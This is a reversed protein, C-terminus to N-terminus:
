RLKLEYVDTRRMSIFGGRGRWNPDIAATIVQESDPQAQTIVLGDPDIICSHSFQHPGATNAHVFWCGNESARSSINARIAPLKYLGERGFAATPHAFIRAGQLALMRWLEPFRMDLCIAVGIKKGDVLVPKLGTAAGPAFQAADGTRTSAGTLQIKDYRGALQGRPSITLATNYYRFGEKITTGVVVALKLKKAAARVDQTARKLYTFDIDRLGNPYHAPGYGSLATEPFVIMRARRKRAAEHMQDLVVRRNHALDPGSQMQGAAVVYRPKWVVAQPPEAPRKHNNKSTKM